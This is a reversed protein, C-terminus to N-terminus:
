HRCIEIRRNGAFLCTGSSGGLKTSIGTEPHGPVKVTIDVGTDVVISVDDALELKAMATEVRHYGNSQREFVKLFLNIKSPSKLDLQM